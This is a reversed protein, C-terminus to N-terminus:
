EGGEQKFNFEISCVQNSVITVAKCRNKDRDSVRWDTVSIPSSFMRKALETADGSTTEIIYEKGNTLTIKWNYM